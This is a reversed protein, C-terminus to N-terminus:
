NKPQCQVIHYKDTNNYIYESDEIGCLTSDSVRQWTFSGSSGIGKMAYVTCYNCTSVNPTKKCSFLVTAIFIIYLFSIFIAVIRQYRTM